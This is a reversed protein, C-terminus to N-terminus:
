AQPPAPPLTAESFLGGAPELEPGLDDESELTEECDLADEDEGAATAAVPKGYTNLLGLIRLDDKTLPNLPGLWGLFRMVHAIREPRESRLAEEESFASGSLVRPMREPILALTRSVIAANM